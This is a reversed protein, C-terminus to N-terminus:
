PAPLKTTLEAPLSCETQLRGPQATSIRHIPFTRPAQRLRDYALMSGGSVVIPEVIRRSTGGEADAYGIWVATHRQAADRLVGMVDRPNQASTTVEDGARMRRVLAAIQEPTPPPPDAYQPRPPLTIRTRRPRPRLDLVAGGADEAAAAMGAARLAEVLATLDASTVCVTPALARLTIGASTAAATTATRRGPQGDRSVTTTLAERARSTTKM